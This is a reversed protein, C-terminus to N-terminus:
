AVQVERFSVALNPEDKIRLELDVELWAQIADQINELAEQETQGESACGPLAPCWVSFGEETHVLAVKYTM